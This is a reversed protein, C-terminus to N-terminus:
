PAYLIMVRLHLCELTWIWTIAVYLKPKSQKSAAFAILEGVALPACM